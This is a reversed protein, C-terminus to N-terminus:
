ELLYKIHIRNFKTIVTAFVTTAPLNPKFFFYFVKSGPLDVNKGARCKGDTTQEPDSTNTEVSFHIDESELNFRVGKKESDIDNDKVDM